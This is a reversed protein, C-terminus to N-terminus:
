SAMKGMSNSTAVIVELQIVESTNMQSLYDIIASEELYKVVDGSMAASQDPQALFLMLLTFVMSSTYVKPLSGFQIANNDMGDFFKSLDKIQMGYHLSKISEKGKALCQVQANSSSTTPELAKTKM